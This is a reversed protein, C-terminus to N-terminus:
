VCWLVVGAAKVPVFGVTSHEVTSYRTLLNARSVGRQCKIDRLLEDSNKPLFACKRTTKLNKSRCGRGSNGIGLHDRFEQVKPGLPSLGTRTPGNQVSGSDLHATQPRAREFIRVAGSLTSCALALLNKTGFYPPLDVTYLPNQGPYVGQRFENPREICPIRWM